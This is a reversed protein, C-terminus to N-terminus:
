VNDVEIPVIVRIKTGKGRFSKIRFTGGLSEVRERMNVLGLGKVQKKGKQLSIGQGNDEIAMIVFPYGKTLRIIVKSAGSHRVVNTLAEQAVRYLALSVPLPLDKDFGAELLEAELNRRRVFSDIYWNLTPILGLEELMSPHLSKSVSRTGNAVFRQQAKITDFSKRACPSLPGLNKELMELELKLATLAQGIEDHLMLACQRREAEGSAIVRKALNKLEGQSKRLTQLLEVREIGAGFRNAVNEFFRRVDLDITKAETLGFIVLYDKKTGTRFVFGITRKIGMEPRIDADKRPMTGVDEELVIPHRSQVIKNFISDALPIREVRKRIEPPLGGSQLLICEKKMRDVLYFGRGKAGIFDGLLNLMQDIVQKQSKAKAIARHIENFLTLEGNRRSLENEMRLFDTVERLIVIVIPPDMDRLLNATIHVDHYVGDRRVTGFQYTCSGKEKLVRNVEELIPLLEPREYDRMQKGKLETGRPLAHIDIWAKNHYLIIGRTDGIIIGDSSGDLAKVVIENINKPLKTTKRRQRRKEAM